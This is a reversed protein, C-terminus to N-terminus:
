DALSRFLCNGDGEAEKVKLFLPQLQQEFKKLDLMYKELDLKHQM